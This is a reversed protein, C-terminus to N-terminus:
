RCGALARELATLDVPKVLHDDFGAAYARQSDEAQGYGTLAVLRLGNLGPSARLRAALEYGNMEPLGIDLLGVDPEFTEILTLAEKAGYAVQTEHGRLTLLMSLSTAADVNDDVILVRRPAVKIDTGDAAAPEPRAVRPLRIEFTSGRGIGESRGRVEGGHMEVLRKVVALGIGLGGQSRDLTRDSQVFLDFVQPLLEPAIGTGNDTIEIVASAEDRSTQVRIEGGPETYKVANALVNAVCQVLRTSDGDVHLPEYSAAFLSLKHRKERLQPEITEIAQAIVAALDVPRKQLQIRGQTIRSVDLLDDVLRTLQTAQRKIMGIATQTRADEGVTRALLEGAIAIPALPNRLEHALMALFEDKRRNAEDLAQEIRKRQEIERQSAQHLRANEFAVAAQASIAHVFHEAREDFVGPDPHGFFMGGLVQGSSTKVPVALYSRVPLHGPPMGEYPPNHGYRPDLTIDPSRVAEGRFTPGFVGTNRPQPFHAFAERPAGSLTYLRFWEGKEDQVNYFFAGFAAGSIETAADTAIQVVRQTDLQAAVLHQSLKGLLERVRTEERLREEARKRTTIDIATGIVRVCRGSGDFIGRGKAAVWRVLGDEKGITRYEVDYVARRKPDHAAEFAESTPRRDAPHLGAYFDAMSVPVAASIGFMAKVRPPWFMAGTVLDVDWLGVEAAETALRLQQERERLAEETEKRMQTLELLAGVRALMERASFPKVLYDDAGADFGEVRSEEGARASLLIVPIDRLHRDARLAKVLALGGVRPMMIDSLILDPRERRVAELAEEGDAAVRVIYSPSLLDRVYARMDANDDALLIRSGATRAFRQDAAPHETVAPLPAFTDDTGAPISRLAEQVFAHAGIATSVASRAARIRDRPLHEM